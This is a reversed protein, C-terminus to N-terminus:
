RSSSDTPMCAYAEAPSPSSWRPPCRSSSSSRRSRATAAHLDEHRPRGAEDPRVAGRGQLLGTVLQPEEYAVAVLRCAHTSRHPQAIGLQHDAVHDHQAAHYLSEGDTPRAGRELLLRAVAVNGVACPFYLAPISDSVDPLPAGANPDGGADLLARVTALHQAQSVGLLQKLDEYVAFLLPEIGVNPLTQTALATDVDLFRQM